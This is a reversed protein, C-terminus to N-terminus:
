QNIVQITGDRGPSGQRQEQQYLRGRSARRDMTAGAAAIGVPEERPRGSVHHVPYVVRAPIGQGDAALLFCLAQRIPILKLSCRSCTQRIYFKDAPAGMGAQAVLVLGDGMGAAVVMGQPFQTLVM